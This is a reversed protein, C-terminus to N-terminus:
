LLVILNYDREIIEQMMNTKRTKIIKLPAHIEKMAVPNPWILWWWMCDHKTINKVTNVFVQHSKLTCIFRDLNKIVHKINWLFINETFINVVSLRRKTFLSLCIEYSINEEPCGQTVAYSM